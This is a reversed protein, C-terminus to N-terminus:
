KDKSELVDSFAEHINQGEASNNFYEVRNELLSNMTARDKLISITEQLNEYDSAPVVVVDGRSGGVIRLPEHNDLVSKHFSSLSSRYESIRATRMM